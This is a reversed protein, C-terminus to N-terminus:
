SVGVGGAGFIVPPRGRPIVVHLAGGVCCFEMPTLGAPEGDVQVPLDPTTIAIQRARAHYVDARELHRGRRAAWLSGPLRWPRAPDFSCLDLFGDDVLAEPTIELVGGYLRTNGIVLMLTRLDVARGDVELGVVPPRYRPLERVAHLAYAGAGLWRKLRPGVLAVVRADFGASAMLLFYREGAIGLDASARVGEDIMRAAGVPDRPFGVERAWINVTGGPIVALATATGALAQIVENVTGDGGCAVVVNSGDDVARSALITADEPAGTRASAVEWGRDRLLGCAAEIESAKPAHHAAPNIILDIRGKAM